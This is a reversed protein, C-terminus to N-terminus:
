ESHSGGTSKSGVMMGSVSVELLTFDLDPCVILLGPTLNTGRVGGRRNSDPDTFPAAYDSSGEKLAGERLTSSRKRPLGRSQVAPIDGEYAEAFFVDDDEGDTAPTGSINTATVTISDIQRVQARTKQFVQGEESAPQVSSGVWGCPIPSIVLRANAPLNEFESKTAETLQLQSDSIRHHIQAKRGIFEKSSSYIVYVWAGEYGSTFVPNATKKQLLTGSGVGVDLDFRLSGAIDLVSLRPNSTQADLKERRYDQVFIRPKWGAIIDTDDDVPANQLWLARPQLATTEDTPDIPWSGERVGMFPLDRDMTGRASNFWIGISEGLVPNYSYLCGNGPDYAMSCQSLHSTWENNIIQNFARVDDLQGNSAVAKLGRENLYYVTTGVVALGRRGAIGFGTHIEQVRIYAGETRIHYQRDAAFGLVSSGVQRMAIVTSSPSPTRYVDLPSYLEPSLDVLSSWKFESINRDQDGATNEEPTSPTSGRIDSSLLTGEYIFITGAKPMEADFLSHDQWPQKWVLSKDKVTYYYIAQRLDTTDTDFVYPDDPGATDSGNNNTLFDALDVINELHIIRAIYAGGADQVRVSRYVWLQDFQGSDYVIELAAYRDSYVPPDGGDDPFDGILCEAVESLATRRGTESDVLRYAFAYDGPVLRHPEGPPDAQASLGLSLATPLSNTLILQAAGYRKAHGTGTLDGITGSDEINPLTPQYGPGPVDVSTDLGLIKIQDFTGSGSDQMYFAAPSRNRLAVYVFRGFVSVDMPETISVNEMVPEGYTWTSDDTNYFDIFVDATAGGEKRQARYVIGFGYDGSGISFNVPFFDLVVSTEDHSAHAYFDLEHIQKFGSHPRLGGEHNGDFGYLRSSNPPKVSSRGVRADM